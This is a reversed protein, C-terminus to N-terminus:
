PAKGTLSLQYSRFTVWAVISSFSGFDFLYSFSVCKLVPDGGEVRVEHWSQMKEVVKATLEDRKVFEMAGAWAEQEVANGKGKSKGKSNSSICSLLPADINIYAQERPNVLSHTTIYANLLSKIEPLTYLATPSTADTLPCVLSSVVFM